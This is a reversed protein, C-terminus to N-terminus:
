LGESGHFPSGFCSEKYLRLQNFMATRDLNTDPFPANSQDYAEGSTKIEELFRRKKM